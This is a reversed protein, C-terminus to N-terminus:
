RISEKFLDCQRLQSFLSIATNEWQFMNIRASGNAVLRDRLEANKMVKHIAAEMDGVDLPNFYYAADGCVEPISAANSAVVPCGCTMAELPPIGFGEYISPFIFIIANEYLSKLKEDTIYGAYKVNTKCREENDISFVGANSGGVIVLDVEIKEIANLLRSINKTPNLSGVALVFTNKEINLESLISNDAILSDMHGCANYLVGVREKCINFIRLLREKSFQSVTFIKRSTKSLVGFLFKYWNRFVFTYASPYDYLVTDHITVFQKVKLLPAGGSFNLLYSFRSAFPLVLQEWLHGKIGFGVFRITINLLLPPSVGLPCLLIFKESINKRTLLLDLAMLLQLSFRQVGTSRQSLFRGNIYIM